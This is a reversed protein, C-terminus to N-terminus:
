VNLATGCHYARNNGSWLPPNDSDKVQPLGLAKLRETEKGGYIYHLGSGSHLIFTIEIKLKTKLMSKVVLLVLRLEIHM